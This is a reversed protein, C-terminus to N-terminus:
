NCSKSGVSFKAIQKMSDGDRLVFVMNAVVWAGTNASGVAAVAGGSLPIEGAKKDLIFVKVTKISAIAVNWSVKAIVPPDCERLIAPDVIFSVGPVSQTISSDSLNQLMFLTISFSLVVVAISGLILLAIRLWSRLM